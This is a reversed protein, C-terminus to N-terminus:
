ENKSKSEHNSHVHGSKNLCIELRLSRLPRVEVRYVASLLDSLHERSCVVAVM